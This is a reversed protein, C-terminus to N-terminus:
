LTHKVISHLKFLDYTRKIFYHFNTLIDANIEINIYIDVKNALYKITIRGNM